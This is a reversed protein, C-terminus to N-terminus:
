CGPKPEDQGYSSDAFKIGPPDGSVAVDHESSERHSDPADLDTAIDDFVLLDSVQSSELGNPMEFIAALSWDVDAVIDEPEAWRAQDGFLPRACLPCLADESSPYIKPSSTDPRVWIAECEDCMAYLHRRGQNDECSRVRCLGDVCVPCEGIHIWPSPPISSMNYRLETQFRSPGKFRFRRSLKIETSLWDCVNPM